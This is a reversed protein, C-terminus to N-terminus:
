NTWTLTYNGLPHKNIYDLQADKLKYLFYKYSGTIFKIELSQIKNNNIYVIILCKKHNIWISSLRLVKINDINFTESILQINFCHDPINSIKLTCNDINLEVNVDVENAEGFPWADNRSAFKVTKSIYCQANVLQITLLSFIIIIISKM